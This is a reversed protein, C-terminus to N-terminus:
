LINCFNYNGDEILEIYEDFEQWDVSKILVFGDVEDSQMVQETIEIQSKTSYFSEKLIAFKEKLIKIDSKEIKSGIAELEIEILSWSSKLMKIKIIKEYLIISESLKDQLQQANKSM